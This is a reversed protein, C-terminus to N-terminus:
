KKKQPQGQSSCTITLSRILRKQQTAAQRRQAETIGALRIHRTLRRNTRLFGTLADNTHKVSKCIDFTIKRSDKIRRARDVQVQKLAQRNASAADRSKNTADNLKWIAFGDLVGLVLVCLICAKIAARLWAHEKLAQNVVWEDEDRRLDRRREPQGPGPTNDLHNV